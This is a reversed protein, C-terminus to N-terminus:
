ERAGESTSSTPSAIIKCRKLTKDHAYKSCRECFFAKMGCLPCCIEEGNDYVDEPCHHCRTPKM